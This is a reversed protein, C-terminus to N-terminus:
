VILRKQARPMTAREEAFLEEALGVGIAKLLEAGVVDELLPHPWPAEFDGATSHDDDKDNSEEKESFAREKTNFQSSKYSCKRAGMAAMATTYKEQVM